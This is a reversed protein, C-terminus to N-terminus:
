KSGMSAKVEGADSPRYELPDRGDAPPPRKEVGRLKGVYRFTGAHHVFSWLHWPRKGDPLTLRVSYLPVRKKMSALALCQYGVAGPQEADAFREAHVATRGGDILVKM